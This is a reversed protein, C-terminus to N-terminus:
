RQLDYEQPSRLNATLRGGADLIREAEPGVAYSKIEAWKNRIVAAIARMLAASVASDTCTGIRGALITQEDFLGGPVVAVSDPNSQQDVAFRTGERRQPIPRVTFPVVIDAMLYSHGLNTDPTRTRGLGQIESASLREDPTHTDLLGAEVYHVPRISEVDVLLDLLDSPTAFIHIIESM